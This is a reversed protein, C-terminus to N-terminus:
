CTLNGRKKEVGRTTVLAVGTGAIDGIVRQGIKVPAETVVARTKRLCETVSTLPVPRTTRVSVLPRVGGKVRVTTTVTRVPAAIEETAYDMGKPCLNGTVNLIVPAKEGTEWEIELECGNPCLICTLELQNM